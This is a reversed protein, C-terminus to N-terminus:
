RKVPAYEEETKVGFQHYDSYTADGGVDELGAADYRETMRSPLWLHLRADERFIVTLTGRFDAM